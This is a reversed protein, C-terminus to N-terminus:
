LGLEARLADFLPDRPPPKRTHRISTRTAPALPSNRKEPRDPRIPEPQPAPRRAQKPPAIM